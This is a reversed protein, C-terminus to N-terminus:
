QLEPGTLLSNGNLILRDATVHGKLTTNGNLTVTGNPAIVDGALDVGGNLTVGGSAVRLTLWEPHASDGADGVLTLGNALTLTVPGVIKLTANGTVTLNQVDYVARETSGAVGLIFGNSGTATLNGYAGSPVAIQGADGNLTLNRLTSWEGVLDTSKNLTVNRTGAPQAPAAVSPLTLADVRRVLKRLVANGNLTVDYNAPTAAGTADVTGAFTPKGNLRVAPM